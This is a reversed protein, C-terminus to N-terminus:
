SGVSQQPDEPEREKAKVKKSEALFRQTTAARLGIQSQSWSVM